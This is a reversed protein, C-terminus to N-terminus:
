VILIILPHTRPLARWGITGHPLTRLLAETPQQSDHNAPKAGVVWSSCSRRHKASFWTVRGQTKMDMYWEYAWICSKIIMGWELRSVGATTHGERIGRPNFTRGSWTFRHLYTPELLSTSYISPVSSPHHTNTTTTTSQKNMGLEGCGSSLGGM